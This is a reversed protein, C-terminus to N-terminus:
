RILGNEPQVADISADGSFYYDLIDAAISALSSGSAGKEMVICMAIQPDDYPAFVVLLGNTEQSTASIQATGTKAGAKVPLTNFYKAIAANQTVQYMGDKMAKLASDPIDVTGLLEPEYEYLVQSYDSSKVSKLLHVSYHDGGNVLTAIYNAIQLPTFQNNEQGIAASTVAGEYWTQGLLASTAPGAVYGAEDGIEIGTHQGLGFLEAYENLKTIGVRRGVDYFYCNCSDKIAKALDEKGHGVGYARWYWCQPNHGRWGEYSYVGTCTIKDNSDVVGEMLGATATLLKFTSGPAYIQSTARNLYPQLPDQSLQSFDRSYTSLDYTPYSALALVGGTMDVVACAAGGSEELSEIHAALANEAVAQLGIDLTLTVNGGPEPEEIWTQTIIKGSDSTVIEREGSTGHLYQEFALEAGSLGVVADYSYGLEKYKQWMADSTYKGTRGLVHAAYTTNYQRSAVSEVTVGALAQEKVKSIFRIGVDEAFIYDSYVVERSRLTLEYLVGVLARAEESVEPLRGDEGEPLPIGFSECMRVLLTEATIVAAPPEAKEATPDDIWGLAVALKGLNTLRLETEAVEAGAEDTATVERSYAYPTSSTFYYPAASSVALNDTWEVGEERCLALLALLVENREEGMLSTDLTVQYSGTNSVLVRGKSDLLEGRVSDVTETEATTYSAQERYDDGHVIQLGYLIHAFLALGVAFFLLLIGSRVKLQRADQETRDEPARRGYRAFNKSM